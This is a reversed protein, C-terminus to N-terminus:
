VLKGPGLVRAQDASTDYAASTDHAFTYRLHIRARSHIQSRTYGVSVAFRFTCTPAIYICMRVRPIDLYLCIDPDLLRTALRVKLTYELVLCLESNTNVAAGM